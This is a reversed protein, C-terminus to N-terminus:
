TFAIVCSLPILSISKIQEEAM